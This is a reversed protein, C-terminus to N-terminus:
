EDASEVEVTEAGPVNLKIEIKPVQEQKPVRNLKGHIEALLRLAPIKPHFDMERVSTGDAAFKVSKVAAMAKRSVNAKRRFGGGPVQELVDLPNSTAIAELHFAVEEDSALQPLRGADASLAAPVTLEDPARDYKRRKSGGGDEGRKGM